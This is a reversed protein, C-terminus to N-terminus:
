KAPPDKTFTNKVAGVAGEALNAAGTAAGQAFGAVSNAAGGAMDSAGQAATKVSDGTQDLFSPSKAADKQLSNSSPKIALPLTSFDDSLRRGSEPSFLFSFCLFADLSCVPPRHSIAWLGSGFAFVIFWSGLIQALYIAWIVM